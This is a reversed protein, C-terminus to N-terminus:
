KSSSQSHIFGNITYVNHGDIYKQQKDDFVFFGGTGILQHLFMEAKLLSYTRFDEEKSYTIVYDRKWPSENESYTLIQGQDTLAEKIKFDKPSEIYFYNFTEAQELQEYKNVGVKVWKEESLIKCSHPPIAIIRQQQYTKSLSYFKGGGLSVGGIGLRNTISGIGLSVGYNGGSNVTVQESPNYYCYFSGDNYIRFCNGKDVYITQNSKNTLEINYVAYVGGNPWKKPFYRVLKMEIDENSLVSTSKMGYILIYGKAPKNKKKINASVQYIHNYMNILDINKDDSPVDIFGQLLGNDSDVKNTEKHLFNTDKEGNEYTISFIECRDICYLPGDLNSKKKYKIESNNVEFVKGQIISGDNKVIIDQAKISLSIGLIFFLSYLSRMLILFHTHM